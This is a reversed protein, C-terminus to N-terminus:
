SPSLATPEPLKQALANRALRTVRVTVALTAILGVGYLIWEGTSRSRELTTARALSGLYVYMVTGPLMGLWSAWVYSVLKVGTLGFAYNLLTFPLVPSLRSLLVIKWGERAVARDLAAFRRSRAIKGVVIARAGHRGLLFALTAGLTSGVSVWLSGQVVGFMAGAALTLAWGPFLLVTAAAYLGIFAVPGMAGARQSEDLAQRLLAQVQPSLAAAAVLLLLVWGVAAKGPKGGRTQERVSAAGATDASTTAEPKAESHPTSPM